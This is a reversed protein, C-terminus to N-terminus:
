GAKAATKAAMEQYQREFQEAKEQDGQRRYEEAWAKLYELRRKDQNEERERRAEQRTREYEATRAEHDSQRASKGSPSSRPLRKEAWSIMHALVDGESEWTKGKLHQRERFQKTLAAADEASLGLVKALDRAKEEWAVRADTLPAKLSNSNNINNKDSNSRSNTPSNTPSNTLSNTAENTAEDLESVSLIYIQTVGHTVKHTLGYTVRQTVTQTVVLGDRELQKLATRLQQLPMDLDAALQRWSHCYQRTSVDMSCALHLYLIRANVSSYSSYRRIDPITTYKIM